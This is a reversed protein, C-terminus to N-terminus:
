GCASDLCTPAVSPEMRQSLAQQGVRDRVAPIGLKRVGGAATPIEVRTVPKPRYTGDRRQRHLLDLYSAQRAACPARTVEDLGARGRNSQVKEWALELNTRSFVQDILAHGTPKGQRGASAQPAQPEV